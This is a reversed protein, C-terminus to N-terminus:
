NKKGAKKAKREKIERIAADKASNRIAEKQDKKAAIDKLTMGLIPRAITKTAKKGHKKNKEITTIKKNNRRWATTWEIRAPKKKNDYLCTIKHNLFTVPQGDRRIFLSGHGPYIKYESFSCVKTKVVM